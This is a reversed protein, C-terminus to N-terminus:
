LFRRREEPLTRHALQQFTPPTRGHATAWRYRIVVENCRSSQTKDSRSISSKVTLPHKYSDWWKIINQSTVEGKEDFFKEPNILPTTSLIFLFVLTFGLM